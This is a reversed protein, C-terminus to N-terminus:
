SSSQWLQKPQSTFNNRTSNPQFLKPSNMVEYLDKKSVIQSKRM